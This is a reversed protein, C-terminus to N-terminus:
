LAAVQEALVEMNVQGDEPLVGLRRANYRRDLEEHVHPWAERLKAINDSDAKLMAAMILAYFPEDRRHLRLAKHYSHLGILTAM